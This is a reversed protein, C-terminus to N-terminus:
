LDDADQVPVEDRHVPCGTWSGQPDTQNSQFNTMPGSFPTEQQPPTTRQQKKQKLTNRGSSLFYLRQPM